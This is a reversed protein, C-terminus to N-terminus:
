GEGTGKKWVLYADRMCHGCPRFGAAIAEEESEFFVRNAKKMRKGSSCSLKGYINLSVNGAFIIKGKKILRRLASKGKENDEFYIHRIM